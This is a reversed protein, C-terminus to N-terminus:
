TGPLHPSPTSPDEGPSSHSSTSASQHTAQLIMPLVFGPAFGTVSIQIVIGVRAPVFFRKPFLQSSAIGPRTANESLRITRQTHVLANVSNSVM